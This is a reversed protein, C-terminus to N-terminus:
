EIGLLGKLKIITKWDAKAVKTKFYKKLVDISERTVHSLLPNTHDFHRGYMVAQKGEEPAIKVAVAAGGAVAKDVAKHDHEISAVRGIDLVNPGGGMVAAATGAGGSAASAPATGPLVVCLPTGVKLVGEIVEVGVVIPDRKM